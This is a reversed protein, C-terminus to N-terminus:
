KIINDNFFRHLNIHDQIMTSSHSEKLALTCWNYFSWANKDLFEEFSSKNFQQKIISLQASTILNENMFMRGVSEAISNDTLEIEKMRKSDKLISNFSSEMHDITYNIKDLLEGVVNGTHRRMMTIEGSVAGNECVFVQAGAAFGVSMSRDYSNKFAIMFGMDDSGQDVRFMGTMKNGQADARFTENTINLSRKYLLESLEDLIIAHPVPSYSTTALPLPVKLLEARTVINRLM